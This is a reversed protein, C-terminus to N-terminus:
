AGTIAWAEARSATDGTKIHGNLMDFFLLATTAPNLKNATMVRNDYSPHLMAIGMTKRVFQHINSREVWGVKFDRQFGLSAAM